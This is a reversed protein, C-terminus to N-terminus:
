HPQISYTPLTRRKLYPTALPYRHDQRLHRRHHADLRNLETKTLGWTGMNYTLVPLVFASYLRLRLPLSIQAGRFWVTWM